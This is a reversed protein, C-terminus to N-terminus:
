PSRAAELNPYINHPKIRCDKLVSNLAPLVQFTLAPNETKGEFLVEVKPQLASETTLFIRILFNNDGISFPYYRTYGGKRIDIHELDFRVESALGFFRRYRQIVDEKPYRKLCDMEYLSLGKRVVDWINQFLIGPNAPDVRAPPRLPYLYDAQGVSSVITQVLFSALVILPAKKGNM